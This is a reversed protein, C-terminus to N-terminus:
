ALLVDVQQATYGLNLLVNKQKLEALHLDLKLLRIESTQARETEQFEMVVTHNDEDGM